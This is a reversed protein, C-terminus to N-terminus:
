SATEVDGFPDDLLAEQSPLPALALSAQPLNHSLWYGLPIVVMVAEISGSLSPSGTGASPPFGPAPYQPSHPPRVRTLEADDRTMVIVTDINTSPDLAASRVLHVVLRDRSGLSGLHTSPDPYTMAIDAVRLLVVDLSTLPHSLFGRAQAARALGRTLGAEEAVQSLSWGRAGGRSKPRPM